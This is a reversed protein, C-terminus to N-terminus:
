AFCRPLAAKPAPRNSSARAGVEIVMSGSTYLDVLQGFLGILSSGFTGVLSLMVLLDNPSMVRTNPNATLLPASAWLAYVVVQITVQATSLTDSNYQYEADRAGLDAGISKQLLKTAADERGELRILRWHETVFYLQRYVAERADFKERWLRWTTPARLFYFVCSLLLLTSFGASVIVVDQRQGYM